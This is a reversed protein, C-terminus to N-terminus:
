LRCGFSRWSFWFEIEVSCEQTVRFFYLVGCCLQPANFNL